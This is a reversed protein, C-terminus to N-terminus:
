DSTSTEDLELTGVWESIEAAGFTGGADGMRTVVIDDEPFVAMVQDGLGLAAYGAAGDGLSGQGAATARDGSGLLWWLYGYSPNLDQSPATAEDVFEESLVQEGDWEGDRMYMLGFRGLDLCSSQMGMFVLTNGAHDFTMDSAMGTPGFLKESAYQDVPVGTARELVAELTQIAANNYVWDTGPEFEQGLEISFATKDPAIAAMQGYDTANDHYRGSDNSILNRITVSESDTGQWETIFDSAPQDIDLHGEDQAIGVLTATISKTVSWAESETTPESGKWYWDAVLEGDRFVALCRSGSAEADAALADLAAQDIGAEAPAVRDWQSGPWARPDPATTTTTAETTEVASEAGADASDDGSCAGALLAALALSAVGTRRTRAM